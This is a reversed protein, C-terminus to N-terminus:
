KKKKVNKEKEGWFGFYSRTKNTQTKKKRGKGGGFRFFFFWFVLGVGFGFFFVWGFGGWGEWRARLLVGICCVGHRPSYILGEKFLRVWPGPSSPAQKRKFYSALPGSKQLFQGFALPLLSSYPGHLTCGRGKGVSDCNKGRRDAFSRSLFM